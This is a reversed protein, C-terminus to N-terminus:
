FPIDREDFLPVQSPQRSKLERSPVVRIVAVGGRQIVGIAELAERESAREALAPGRLPGYDTHDCQCHLAHRCDPVLTESQGSPLHRRVFTHLHAVYEPCLERVLWVGGSPVAHLVRKVKVEPLKLHRGKCPGRSAHRATRM